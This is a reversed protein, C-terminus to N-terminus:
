RSLPVIAVTERNPAIAITPGSRMDPRTAQSSHSATWRTARVPKLCRM